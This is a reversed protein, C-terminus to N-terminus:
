RHELETRVSRHEHEPGSFAERKRMSRGNRCDCGEARRMGSPRRVRRGTAYRWASGAGKPRFSKGKPSPTQAGDPALSSRSARTTPTVPLAKPPLSLPPPISGGRFEELKELESRECKGGSPPRAGTRRVMASGTLGECRVTSTSRGKLWDCEGLHRYGWPGSQPSRKSFDYRIESHGISFIRLCSQHLHRTSNLWGPRV